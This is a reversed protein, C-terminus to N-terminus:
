RGGQPLSRHISWGLVALAAAADWGPKIPHELHDLGEDDLFRHMTPNLDGRFDPAAVTSFREVGHPDILVFGDSHDVDYTLPQGTWWDISPPDDEPVRQVSWGFFHAFQRAAAPSETVLEWSAGNLRAYAALRAPTDRGPDVSMEVLQVEGAARAAVLVQQVELLNATDLPCIDTCLTLFPVILVTKGRFSALTVTRDGQDQLALDALSTPIARSEVTGLSASPTGPDRSGCSSLAPVLLTLLAVAARRRRRLTREM